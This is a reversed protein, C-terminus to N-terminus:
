NSKETDEKEKTSEEKKAKGIKVKAYRLVKDNIMYGKMLEDIVKGQDEENSETQLLVEHKYPDFDKGICEIHRVGESELVNMLQSFILEIGQVFKENDKTNKLALEFSDITSLIKLIIEQKAYQKFETCSKESRKKYNEFEAQLRQLDETLESIKNDKEQIEEKIKDSKSKDKEKPNDKKDDKNKNSM